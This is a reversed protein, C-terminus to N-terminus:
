TCGYTRDLQNARYEYSVVFATTLASEQGQGGGRRVPRARRTPRGCCCTPTSRSSTSASDPYKARYEPSAVIDAIVQERDAGCSGTRTARLGTADADRGLYQQYFSQVQIQRHETIGLRRPRGGLTRAASLEALHGFARRMRRAASCTAYLKQIYATNSVDTPSNAGADGPAWQLVGIALREAHVVKASSRRPSRM